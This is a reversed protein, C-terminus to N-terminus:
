TLPADVEYGTPDTNRTVRDTTRDTSYGLDEVVTRIRNEDVITPDYRVTVSHDGGNVEVDRVGEVGSLGTELTDRDGDGIKASVFRATEVLGDQM